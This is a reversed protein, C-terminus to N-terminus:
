RDEGKALLIAGILCALLIVSALEFAFLYNQIFAQGIVGATQEPLKQPDRWSYLGFWKVLLAGMAAAVPLAAVWASRLRTTRMGAVDETLMIAFMMLVAIAGVYVIIQSMGVFDANLVVYIGGIAAFTAALWLAAHFINRSFVVLLAGIITFSAFGLFAIQTATLSM